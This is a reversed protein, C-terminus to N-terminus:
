YIQLELEMRRAREALFLIWCEKCYLASYDIYAELIDSALHRRLPLTDKLDKQIQTM